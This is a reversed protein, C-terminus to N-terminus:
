NSSFGELCMWQWEWEAYGDHCGADNVRVFIWESERVGNCAGAFIAFRASYVVSLELKGIYPTCDRGDLGGSQPTHHELGM